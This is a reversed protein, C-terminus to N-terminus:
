VINCEVATFAEFEFTFEWFVLYWWSLNWMKVCFICLSPPLFVVANFDFCFWIVWDNVDGTQGYTQPKDCNHQFIWGVGLTWVTWCVPQTQQWHWASELPDSYQVTSGTWQIVHKGVLVSMYMMCEGQTHNVMRRTMDHRTFLCACRLLVCNKM